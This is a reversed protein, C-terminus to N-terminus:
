DLLALFEEISQPRYDKFVQVANRIANWTKDSIDDPKITDESLGEKGLPSGVLLRYLIVGLSYIDTAPSFDRIKGVEIPTYEDSSVALITSDKEVDEHYLHAAGFDILIAKGDEDMMINKPNVDLHNMRHKHMESLASAVERIIRLAEEEELVGMETSEVYEELSGGEIYEMTYYCTENEDFVDYVNVIHPHNTFQRIKGAEDMFKRRSLAVENLKELPTIVCQSEVDRKQVDSMFFEKVAIESKVTKGEVKFYGTAKYTIGFGGRGLYKNIRYKGKYLLTGVPLAIAKSSVVEDINYGFSQNISKLYFLKEENYLMKQREVSTECDPIQIYLSLFVDALMYPDDFFNNGGYPFLQEKFYDKWLENVLYSEDVVDEKILFIEGYETIPIKDEPLRFLRPQYSLSNCLDAVLYTLSRKARKCDTYSLLKVKFPSYDVQTEFPVSFTDTTNGQEIVLSLLERLQIVKMGKSAIPIRAKRIIDAIDIKYGNDKIEQNSLIYCQKKEKISNLLESADLNSDLVRDYIEVSGKKEKQKNIIVINMRNDLFIIKEVWDNDFMPRKYRVLRIHYNWFSDSVLCAAKGSEPISTIYHNFIWNYEDTIPNTFRSDAMRIKHRYDPIWILYDFKVMKPYNILYFQSIRNNDVLFLQDMLRLDNLDNAGIYTCHKPLFASLWGNNSRPNFVCGKPDLLGIIVWALACRKELSIPSIIKGRGDNEYNECLSIIDLFLINYHDKLFASDFSELILCINKEILLVDDKCKSDELYNTRLFLINRMLRRVKENCSLEKLAEIRDELNVQNEKSVLYLLFLSFSAADVSITVNMYRLTEEVFIEMKEDESKTALETKLLELLTQKM